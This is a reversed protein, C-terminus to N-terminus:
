KAELVFEATHVVGGVKFDLYLLYRGPSPVEAVFRIEPGTGGGEDPHVHLYALDGERLAVLHGFAGLYPQLRTEPRNGQKVTFALPSGQGARLEGAVSVDFGAVSDSRSTPRAVPEFDGAVEVNRGLTVNPSDTAGGPVFDAFVRYSGGEDWTWPLSWTGSDFRPHVHRFRDGDSRVVILHLDKEHSTEFEVQPMGDPGIIRFSLRGPSGPVPPATVPSLRYGDQEVSLGRVQSDGMAGSEHGASAHGSDMAGHESDSEDAERTWNAVTEAPVLARGALFMSGFVALLGASFALLKLPTSM